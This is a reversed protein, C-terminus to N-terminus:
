TKCKLWTSCLVWDASQEIKIWEGRMVSLTVKNNNRDDNPQHVRIKLQESNSTSMASTGCLDFTEHLIDFVFLSTEDSIDLFRSTPQLFRPAASNKKFSKSTNPYRIFCVKSHKM